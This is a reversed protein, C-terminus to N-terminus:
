GGNRSAQRVNCIGCVWRAIGAIRRLHIDNTEIGCSSCKVKHKDRYGM